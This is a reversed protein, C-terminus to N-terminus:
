HISRTVDPWSSILREKIMCVARRESPWRVDCVCLWEALHSSIKEKGAREHTLKKSKERTAYPLNLHNEDDNVKSDIRDTEPSLALNKEGRFIYRLTLQESIVKRRHADAKLCRKAEPYPLKTFFVIFQQPTKILQTIFFL